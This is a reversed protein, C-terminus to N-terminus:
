DGKPVKIISVQGALASSVPRAPWWPPPQLRIVYDQSAFANTINAIVRRRTADDVRDNEYPAEWRVISDTYVVLLVRGTLFESEIKMSRAEERYLLQGRGIVEVSFGEDSRIAYKKSMTFM